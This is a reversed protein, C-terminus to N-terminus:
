RIHETTVPRLRLKDQKHKWDTMPTTEFGHDAATATITDLSFYYDEQLFDWTEGDTRNYTLDFFGDPKLVRRMGSLYGEIVDLPTHSFVSHAHAVDFWASPLSELSAGNALMTVPPKGRLEREIVTERAALLIEPSIDIGTYNGAELFEIFRWGARLNGCGVELLRHNPELGHTTLYDFQLKGYALWKKDGQTGVAGQATRRAVDDAMVARYFEPHSTATSRIRRNRIRRRMYPVVLGPKKMTREALHLLSNRTRAM